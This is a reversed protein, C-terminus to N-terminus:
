PMGLTRHRVSYFYGVLCGILIGICACGLSYQLLDKLFMRILDDSLVEGQQVILLNSTFFINISGSFLGSFAGTIIHYLWHKGNKYLSGRKSFFLSISKYFIVFLAGQFGYLVLSPFCFNSGPSLLFFSVFAYYTGIAAGILTMRLWDRM